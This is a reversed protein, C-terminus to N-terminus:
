ALFVRGFNNSQATSKYVILIRVPLEHYCVIGYATPAELSQAGDNVLEEVADHFVDDDFGDDDDVAGVCM